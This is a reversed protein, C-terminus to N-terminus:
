VGYAIYSEAWHDVCDAFPNAATYLKNIDTSGNDFMAIIKAAQARTITADPRFTDDPFGNLVGISGLVDVAENYDIDAADKYYDSTVASAVTAFSLLMVVALVLALVKKFNKM